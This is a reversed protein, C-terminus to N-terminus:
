QPAMLFTCQGAGIASINTAASQIKQLPATPVTFNGTYVGVGKCVRFNTIYGYFQESSLGGGAKNGIYWRSSSDTVNLGFSKSGRQIGNQFVYVTGSRRVLAIHYWTNLNITITAAQGGVTAGPWLYVRRNTYEELSVGLSSSSASNSYWFIRPYQKGGRDYQWWEITFDGTGFALGTSGNYYVYSSTSGSFSYSKGGNAFPGINVVSVGSTGSPTDSQNKALGRFGGMALPNGRAPVGSVGSCYGSADDAFYESMSIPNSGGMETQIQSFAIPQGAAPLVM